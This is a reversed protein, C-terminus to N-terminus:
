WEGRQLSLSTTHQRCLTETQLRCDNYEQLYDFVGLRSGQYEASPGTSTLVVSATISKVSGLKGEEDVTSHFVEEADDHTLSNFSTVSEMDEDVPDENSIEEAGDDDESGESVEPKRRSTDEERLLDSEESSCITGLQIARKAEELVTKAQSLAEEAAAVAKESSVLLSELSAIVSSHNRMQFM